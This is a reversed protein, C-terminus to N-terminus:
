LAAAAREVVWKLGKLSIILVDYVGELAYCAWIEATDYLWLNFTFFTQM